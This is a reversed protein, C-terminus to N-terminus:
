SRQESHTFTSGWAIIVMFDEIIETEPNVKLQLRLADGCSISGVDGTANADGVESANRPNFFHEKVTDSYDWM